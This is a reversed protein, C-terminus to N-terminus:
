GYVERMDEAGKYDRMPKLGEQPTQQLGDSGSRADVVKPTSDTNAAQILVDAHCPTGERCWCALNKGRLTGINSKVYELHTRQQEINDTTLCVFGCLLRRYLEVCESQTGHKGVIFPNGWRTSRDVCITNAPLRFGKSRKRQIREPTM